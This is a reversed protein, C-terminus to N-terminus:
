SGLLTNKGLSLTSPDVGTAGTLMTSSPGGKASQSAFDLISGIDPRKQNAMNNAEDAAKMQKDASARAQDQANKADKRQQRGDQISMVTNVVAATAVIASVAGSM